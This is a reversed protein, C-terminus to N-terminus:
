NLLLSAAAEALLIPQPELGTKVPQFTASLPAAM